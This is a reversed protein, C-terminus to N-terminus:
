RLVKVHFYAPAASEEFEVRGDFSRSEGRDLTETTPTGDKHVGIRAVGVEIGQKDFVQLDVRPHVINLTDNHIVLKYELHRASGKSAVSFVVNKAYDEELALVKDFELRRLGPLRNDKIAEIEARLKEVQPRIAELEASQKTQEVALQDKAREAMSMRFFSAILLVVEIAAAAALLMV